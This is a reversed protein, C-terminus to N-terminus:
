LTFVKIHMFFKIAIYILYVINYWKYYENKWKFENIKWIFKMTKIYIKPFINFNFVYKISM